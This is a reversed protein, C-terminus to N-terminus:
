SWYAPVKGLLDKLVQSKKRLRPLRLWQSLLWRLESTFVLYDLVHRVPFLHCLARPLLELEQVVDKRQAEGFVSGCLMVKGMELFTRTMWNWYSNNNWLTRNLLHSIIQIKAHHDERKEVVLCKGWHNNRHWSAVPTREQSRCLQCRCSLIGWVVPVKCLHVM